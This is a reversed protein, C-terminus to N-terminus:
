AVCVGLKCAVRHPALYWYSQPKRFLERVGKFCYKIKSKVVQRVLFRLLRASSTFQLDTYTYAHLKVYVRLIELNHPQERVMEIGGERPVRVCPRYPFDRPGSFPRFVRWSTM